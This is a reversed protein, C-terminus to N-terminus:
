EANNAAALAKTAESLSIHLSAAVFEATLPTHNGQAIENGILYTVKKVLDEDNFSMMESKIKNCM